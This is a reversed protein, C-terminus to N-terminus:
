LSGYRRGIEDFDARASKIRCKLQWAEKASKRARAEELVAAADEETPIIKAAFPLKFGERSDGTIKIAPQLDITM